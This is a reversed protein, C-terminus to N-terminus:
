SVHQLQGSAKYTTSGSPQPVVAAVLIALVLAALIFIIILNWRRFGAEAGPKVPVLYWPQPDSDWHQM